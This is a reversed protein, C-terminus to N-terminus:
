GKRARDPSEIDCLHFLAILSWVLTGLLNFLFPLFVGVSCLRCLLVFSVLLLGLWVVPSTCAGVVCGGCCPFLVFLMSSEVCGVLLMVLSLTTGVFGFLWFFFVCVRVRVVCFFLVSFLPESSFVAALVALRHPHDVVTAGGGGGGCGVVRRVLVVSGGGACFLLGAGCRLVCWCGRFVRVRVATSSCCGAVLSVFCFLLLVMPPLWFALWICCCLGSVFLRRGRVAALSRYSCGGSKCSCFRILGLFFGGGNQLGLVYRIQFLPALVVM